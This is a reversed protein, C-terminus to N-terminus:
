ALSFKEILNFFGSQNVQLFSNLFFTFMTKICFSVCRKQDIYENTSLIMWERIFIEVYV